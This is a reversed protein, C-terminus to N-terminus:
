LCNQLLEFIKEPSLNGYVRDNILMAPAQDCAGICNVLEFSFKGDATTEGAKVGLEKEVSEAIMLGGKLYCPLSKCIRITYRGQPRTSLFGYFTAVGYVESVSLEAAGAIERMATESIFGATRQKEQLMELLKKRKEKGAPPNAQIKREERGSKKKKGDAWVLATTPCYEICVGCDRCIEKNLPIDADVVIKSGFGRYAASVVNQGVIEECARVCKLCLVCRSLNRQIYPSVDEVAYYRPNQVQFRPAGMEAEAALNHLACERAEMDLVCPGTHGALLLELTAQRSELVKASRTHIVMGEAVPTHCSGVLTRSGDVEVTCIRCNGSPKLQEHHCLTPIEVGVSKATDLITTGADVSIKIEDITVNIKGM